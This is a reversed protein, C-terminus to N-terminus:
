KVVPELILVDQMKGFSLQKVFTVKAQKGKWNATDDEGYAQAIAERSGANPTLIKEKGDPLQVKIQFVLKVGSGDQAKSFDVERIEGVDVFTLIDGAKVDSNKFNKKLDRLNAM